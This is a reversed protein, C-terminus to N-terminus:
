PRAMSNRKAVLSDFEHLLAVLSNRMAQLGFDTVDRKNDRWALMKSQQQEQFNRHQLTSKLQQIQREKSALESEVSAAKDRAECRESRLRRTEEM